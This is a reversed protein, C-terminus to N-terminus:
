RSRRVEYGHDRVYNIARELKRQRQLRRQDPVLLPPGNLEYGHARLWARIIELSHRGVGPAREIVRYDLMAVEEPRIVPKALLLRLANKQRTPLEPALPESSLVKGVSSTPMTRVAELALALM